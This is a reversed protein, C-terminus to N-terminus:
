LLLTSSSPHDLRLRRTWNSVVEFHSHALERKDNRLALLGLYYWIEADEPDELSCM